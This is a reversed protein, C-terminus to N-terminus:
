DLERGQEYEDVLKKADLMAPSPSMPAPPEAPEPCGRVEGSECNVDKCDWRDAHQQCYHTHPPRSAPEPALAARAANEFIILSVHAAEHEDWDATLGSNRNVADDSKRARAVADVLNQCVARLRAADAEVAVARALTEDFAQNMHVLQAEAKPAQNGIGFAARYQVINAIILEPNTADFAWNQPYHRLAAKAWACERAHAEALQKRLEDVQIERLGVAGKLCSVEDQAEALQAERQALRCDLCGASFSAHVDCSQPGISAQLRDLEQKLFPMDALQAKLEDREKLLADMNAELANAVPIFEAKTM